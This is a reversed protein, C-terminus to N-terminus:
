GRVWLMVQGLCDSRMMNTCGTGVGICYGGLQVIGSGEQSMAAVRWFWRVAASGLLCMMAAVYLDHDWVTWQEVSLIRIATLEWGGCTLLLRMRIMWCEWVIKLWLYSCCFFRMFQCWCWGWDICFQWHCFADYSWCCIMSRSNVERAAYVRPCACHVSVTRQM